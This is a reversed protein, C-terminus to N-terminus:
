NMKIQILGEGCKDIRTVGIGKEEFHEFIVKLRTYRIGPNPCLQFYKLNPFKDSFSAENFERLFNNNLRLYELDYLRIINEVPFNHLYNHELSIVEWWPSNNFLNADITILRNRKLYIRKMKSNHQFLGPNLSTLFNSILGISELHPCNYFANHHVTELGLCCADIKKVGRFTDCIDCTFNKMRSDYFRGGLSVYDFYEISQINSMVPNFYPHTNNLCIKEFQCSYKSTRQCTYTPLYLRDIHCTRNQPPPPPQRESIIHFITTPFYKYYFFLESGICADTETNILLMTIMLMITLCLRRFKSSLTVIKM